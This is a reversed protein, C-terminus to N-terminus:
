ACGNVCHAHLINFQMFKVINPLFIFVLLVEDVISDIIIEMRKKRKAGILFAIANGIVLVKNPV